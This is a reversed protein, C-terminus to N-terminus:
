PGREEVTLYYCGASGSGQDQFRLYYDGAPLFRESSIGAGVTTQQATAGSTKIRAVDVYLDSDIVTASGGALMASQQEYFPTPRESSRNKGFMPVTANFTGSPTVNAAAFVKFIFFGVDGTFFQEQLAFDVPSTFKWWLTQGSTLIIERSLRFARGTTMGTQGIDVPLRAFGPDPHTMIRNIDVTFAWPTVPYQTM